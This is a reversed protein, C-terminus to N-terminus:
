FTFAINPGFSTIVNDAWLDIGHKNNHWIENPTHVGGKAGINKCRALRPFIRCRDGRLYQKMCVDWGGGDFVRKGQEYIAGYGFQWRDKIGEWRDKWTGWGWPRFSTTKLIEYKSDEIVDTKDYSGPYRPIYPTNNYGDITFISKDDVFKNACWEFYQLADKALLIDDEVHIVFDADEFGWDICQYIAKNCGLNKPCYHAHIDLKSSYSAVLELLEDSYPSKDINVLIQFTESFNAKLLHDLVQKSYDPRNFLSVTININM